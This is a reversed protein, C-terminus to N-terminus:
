YKFIIFNEEKKGVMIFNIQQKQRRTSTLVEIDYQVFTSNVRIRRKKRVEFLIIQLIEGSFIINNRYACSPRKLNFYM